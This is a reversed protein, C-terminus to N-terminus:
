PTPVVQLCPGSQCTEACWGDVGAAYDLQWWKVSPTGAPAGPMPAMTPGGIIQGPTGGKQTGLVPGGPSSRVNILAQNVKVHAGIAFVPVPTGGKITFGQQPSV